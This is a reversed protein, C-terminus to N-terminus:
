RSFNLLYKLRQIESVIEDRIALLEVNTNCTSHTNLLNINLDLIYSISKKSDLPHVSINQLTKKLKTEIRKNKNPSVKSAGLMVEVYQDILPDLTQLFKDTIKHIPYQSTTWHFLKVSHKLEMLPQIIKKILCVYDENHVRVNSNYRDLSKPTRSKSTKSKSTKSTKSKSTKYPTKTRNSVSLKRTHKM